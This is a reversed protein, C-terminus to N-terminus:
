WEIRTDLLIFVVRRVNPHDDLDIEFCAIPQLEDLEIGRRRSPHMTGNVMM